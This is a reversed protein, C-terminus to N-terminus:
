NNQIKRNRLNFCILGLGITMLLWEPPEPVANTDALVVGHINLTYDGISANYGSANYGIGHLIVTGFYDGAKLNSTIFSVIFNDSINGASVNEFPNLGSFTFFDGTTSFSGKLLDAYGLATNLVNMSGEALSGKTINGFDLNFVNGMSSFFSSNSSFAASAYNNVQGTLAVSQSNLTLDAMENNHSSFDLNANGSFQGNTSTDLKVSIDASSNAALGNAGLDGSAIFKASDSSATGKLSDTLAGTATNAVNINQNVNDGVHVIGFNIAAPAVSAQATAYIHATLNVAQTGLSLDTANTTGAGTSTVAVNATGTFSGATVTSAGVTLTSHDTGQAVLNAINGSASFPTSSTTVDAKLGERYSNTSANSVSIAQTGLTDGVRGVFNLPTAQVVPNAVAYVTGSVSIANNGVAIDALGSTGVGSSVHSLIISSTKVGSGTSNLTVAENVSSGAFIGTLNGPSVSANGNSVSVATNLNENYGSNSASNSVTFSQTQTTGERVNGFNINSTSVSGIATYFAWGQTGHIYSTGSLSGNNLGSYNIYNQYYGPQNVTTTISDSRSAGPTLSIGTTTGYSSVGGVYRGTNVNGLLTTGTPGTNTLTDAATVTAGVRVNQYPVNNPTTSFSAVPDITTLGLQIKSGGSGSFLYGSNSGAGLTDVYGGVVFESGTKSQLAAIGNSNLGVSVPGSYINAITASSGYSSGDRLDNYIGISNTSNRVASASTTVENLNWTVGASSASSGPSSATVTAGTIVRGATATPIAFTAFNRYSDYEYNSFCTSHGLFGCGYSYSGVSTESTYNPNTPNHNGNYDYWGQGNAFITETVAEAPAALISLIAGALVVFLPTSPCHKIGTHKGAKPHKLNHKM